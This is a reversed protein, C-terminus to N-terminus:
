PAFAVETLQYRFNTNAAVLAVSLNNSSVTASSIPDSSAIAKQPTGLALVGSIKVYPIQWASKGIGSQVAMLTITGSTQDTITISVPGATNNVIGTPASPAAPLLWDTGPIARQINAGNGSVDMWYAGRGPANTEPLVLAGL